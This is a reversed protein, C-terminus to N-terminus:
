LKTIWAYQAHIADCIPKGLYSEWDPPTPQLTPKIVHDGYAGHVADNEAVLQEIKNFDHTFNPEGLYEYLSKFVREPASTLEDYQIFFFKAANGKSVADRLRAFGLGVPASNLWHNVRSEVSVMKMNAPDDAPDSLHMNKRHLKEMSTVIARADRVCCIIKPNPYFANLWEYYYMWGRSKDIVSTKHPMGSYFGELAGRCFNLWQQTLDGQLKFEPLNTFNSRAAFLLELVGSTPTCHFQPNQALINQILTSGSRPLSSNFFFKM